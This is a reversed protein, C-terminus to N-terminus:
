NIVLDMIAGMSTVHPRTYTKRCGSQHWGHRKGVDLSIYTSQRSKSTIGLNVGMIAHQCIADISTASLICSMIIQTELM